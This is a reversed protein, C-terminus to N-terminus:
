IMVSDDKEESLLEQSREEVPIIEDEEDEENYLENM